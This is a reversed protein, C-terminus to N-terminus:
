ALCYVIAPDTLGVKDLMRAFWKSFVTSAQGDAGYAIEYFLRKAARSDSARRQVFKDFGLKVLDPHGAGSPHDMKLTLARRKRVGRNPHALARQGISSARDGLSATIM